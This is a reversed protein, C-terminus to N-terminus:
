HGACPAAKASERQECASSCAGMQTQKSVAQEEVSNISTRNQQVVHTGQDGKAVRRPQIIDRRPRSFNMRRNGTQMDRVTRRRALKTGLVNPIGVVYSSATSSSRDIDIRVDSQLV